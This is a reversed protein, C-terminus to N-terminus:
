TQLERIRDCLGCYRRNERNNAIMKWVIERKGVIVVLRKARTVATYLLNRTMLQGPGTLLPLVVAPYESGQSKHITVAYALELEPLEDREYAVIRDEDFCVELSESDPDVYLVYGMDGNFVGEGEEIVVGERGRIEWHKHYNNKIQMVKDGKRYTKDAFMIEAKSKGPPNLTRQFFENLREVGLEGRRMPTLVQIEQRNVKLYRPLKDRLLTLLENQIVMENSRQMIFFDESKNDLLIKEGDNIRHANIVIDSQGEQRFIRTLMVLPFSHSRIMDRLVSGCGVSPLQDKDGALVLHTGVPVAKLLAHMLPLDVMSMEDIILIDAELPNEENRAFLGENEGSGGVELLRHITKAEFGTTETMRKAARGTPAALSFTLGETLACRIMANITTTKGTGPGGTLILIGSEFMTIVARKQQEHLEMQHEQEFRDLMARVRSENIEERINLDHLMHATYLEMYYFASLYVRREEENEEVVVLRDISLNILFQNLDFEEVELLACTRQYLMPAPVYVHGDGVAQQLAYLIGSRIRFDSDAPIGVSVAIDDATKFGVGEIDEALQYPNHLIVAYLKEGYHDYIKAALHPTIGFGGMYMMAQRMDRKEEIQEGLKRAMRSSIGKVEALREPEEEIVRFTEEGFCSVIRSALKPGIGKIAGSGLYRAISETDQPAKETLKSVQWQMGYTPHLVFSGEAEVLEGETLFPITGVCTVEGDDNELVFVTYGNEENRFIIHDVYGTIQDM